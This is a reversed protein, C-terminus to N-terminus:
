NGFNENNNEKTDALMFQVCRNRRKLSEKNVQIANEPIAGNIDVNEMKQVNKIPM